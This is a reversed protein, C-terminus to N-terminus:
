ATEGAKASALSTCDLGAASDAIAAGFDMVNVNLSFSAGAEEPTASEMDSPMVIGVLVESDSSPVIRVARGVLGKMDPL